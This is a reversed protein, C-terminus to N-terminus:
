QWVDRLQDDTLVVDPETDPGDEDMGCCLKWADFLVVIAAVIALVPWVPLFVLALLCGGARKM